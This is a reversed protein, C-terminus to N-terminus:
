APVRKIFHLYYRAIDSISFNPYPQSKGFFLRKLFIRCVVVPTRLSFEPLLRYAGVRLILRVLRLPLFHSM